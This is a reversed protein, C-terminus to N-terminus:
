FSLKHRELLQPAEAGGRLEAGEGGGRVLEAHRLGGHGLLDALELPRQACVEEDAGPPADDGRVGALREGLVRDARQARELVGGVADAGVPRQVVADRRQAREVDRRGPPQVLEHGREESAMGRHGHPQDPAVGGPGSLADPLALELRADDHERDVVVPEVHPREDAVLHEVDAGLRGPRAGRDRDLRERARRQDEVVGFRGVVVRDPALEGVAGLGVAQAQPRADLDLEHVQREPEHGRAGAVGVEGAGVGVGRVERRLQRRVVNSGGSCSVKATTVRRAARRDRAVCSSIASRSACM